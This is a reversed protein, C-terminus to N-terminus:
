ITSISTGLDVVSLHNWVVGAMIGKIPPPPISHHPISTPGGEQRTAKQVMKEGAMQEGSSRMVHGMEKPGEEDESMHGAEKWTLGEYIIHGRNGNYGTV